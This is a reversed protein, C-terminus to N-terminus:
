RATYVRGVVLRHRHDMPEPAGAFFGRGTRRGRNKGAGLPPADELEKVQSPAVESPAETMQTHVLGPSLSNVRIEPAGAGRGM